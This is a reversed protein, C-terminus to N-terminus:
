RQPIASRERRHRNAVNIQLVAKRLEAQAVVFDRQSISEKSKKLIEEARRKAELAKEVEIEESHIAYDALLTIGERGVELFGGTLAYHEPNGKIKLIMEGPTVATVLPMHNPLIGIQGSPTNVILEDIDKDIVTKDPTIVTLQM